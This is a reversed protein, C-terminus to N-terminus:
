NDITNSNFQNMAAVHGDRVITELAETVRKWVKKLETEESASFKGLILKLVKDEGTPKKLKGGATEPSIGVRVRVFENTKVARQISEVGKHGGSSRAFSVKIRGIPLDLDDYVVVLQKAAKVSKVYKAVASGSKNMFTEPLVCVSKVEGETKAVTANAKKDARWETVGQKKAFHEVAIRGTNHHTRTYEEGPNGLGVLVWTM